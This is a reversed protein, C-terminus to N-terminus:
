EMFMPVEKSGCITVRVGMFFGKILLEPNTDRIHVIEWPETQCDGKNEEAM